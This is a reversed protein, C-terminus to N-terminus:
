DLRAAALVQGPGEAQLFVAVPDSGSVTTEMDLPSAGDWEGVTAFGTVINHYTLTRGANEGREITVTENPTFRVVNVTLPGAVNGGSARILLQDGARELRLSVGSPEMLHMKVMSDVAEPNNGEVRDVGNVIMQPTYITRSGVARAYEKQRETFAPDAFEDKWGIYDWYDVHLALAIVDPNAVLEALYGDAPPCSSCGQSTYLEVVVLPKSQAAAMGTAALMLGGAIIAYHRMTMLGKYGRRRETMLFVM